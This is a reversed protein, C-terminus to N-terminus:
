NAVATMSFFNPKGKCYNPKPILKGNDRIALTYLRYQRQCILWRHDPSIAMCFAFNDYRQICRLHGRKDIRYVLISKNTSVYLCSLETDFQLIIDRGGSAISISQTEQIHNNKFTLVSMEPKHTDASIVINRLTLAVLADPAIRTHLSAIKKLKGLQGIYYVSVLRQSPQTLWLYRNHVIIECREDRKAINRIVAIKKYGYTDIKYELLDSESLVYMYRDNVAFSMDYPNAGAAIMWSRSSSQNLKGDRAIYLGDIYGSPHENIDDIGGVYLLRNKPGNHVFGPNRGLYPDGTSKLILSGDPKIQYVVIINGQGQPDGLGYVYQHHSCNHAFLPNCICSIILCVLIRQLRYVM